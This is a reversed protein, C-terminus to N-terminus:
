SKVCVVGLAGESEGDFRKMPTPESSAISARMRQKQTGVWSRMM